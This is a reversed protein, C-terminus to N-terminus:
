FCRTLITVTPLEKYVKSCKASKKDTKMEEEIKVSPRSKNQGCEYLKSGIQCANIKAVTM